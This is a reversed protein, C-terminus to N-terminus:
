IYYEVRMASVELGLRVDQVRSGWSGLVQREWMRARLGQLASLEISFFM